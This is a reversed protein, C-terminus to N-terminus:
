SVAEAFRRVAEMHAQPTQLGVGMTNVSIYNAGLDQWVGVLQKWTEPKGDGYAVRAELPFTNPDRGAEQLYRKLQEIAPRAEEPKRFNIMWGDAIRAIRWLAADATGGFWIPIPRQVPLPNIGADPITHYKGNFTVLPETWLLRLLAVQEEIRKGRNHFNENLTTYEVENWGLGVGLRVRGNSLIDLTAAQKAVLATQRQPLIIINTALTLNKTVAAMYAYLIFPELFESQYTYVGHWGGPRNPNAGLVHDYADIYHLGVEELMQAYDKVAQPDHGFEIQPFVAGFQM